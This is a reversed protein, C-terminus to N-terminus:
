PKFLPPNPLIPRGFSSATVGALCLYRAIAAAILGLVGGMWTPARSASLAGLGLLFFTVTVVAFLLARGTTTRLAGVLMLTTFVTAGFVNSNRFEWMGALLQAPGGYAL